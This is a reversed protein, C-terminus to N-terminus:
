PIVLVQGVKLRRSDGLVDRNADYITRWKGGDGYVASAISSLSDGPMVEYTRKRVHQQLPGPVRQPASARATSRMAKLQELEGQLRRVASQLEGNKQALRDARATADRAVEQEKRARQLAAALQTNEKREQEASDTASAVGSSGARSTVFSQLALQRRKSIMESKDTDPRADLYRSYLCVAGLYDKKEDHLLLALDLSALVMRQDTQLAERYLAIAGDIDGENRKMRARKLLPEARDRSDLWDVSRSCGCALVSVSLLVPLWCRIM